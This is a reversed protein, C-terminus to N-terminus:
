QHLKDYIEMTQKIVSSSGDNEIIFDALPAKDKDSMQQHIIEKVSTPSRHSDRKLVRKIRLEEPATVLITADMKKYSGIEFLLAAEDFLLREEKHQQMWMALDEGVAPHVIANLQQLMSPDKFVKESILSRNLGQENYAETGLLGVIEERLVESNHM